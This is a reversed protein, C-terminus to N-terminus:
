MKMRVGINFTRGLLPAWADTIPEGGLGPVPRLLPSSTQQRQNTLNLANLFIAARGLQVEGLVNLEIYSRSRTRYPDDWLRQHGIYSIEVGFRGLEEDELIGAIEATV